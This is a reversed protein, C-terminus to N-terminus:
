VFDLCKNIMHVEGVGVRQPYQDSTPPPTALRAKLPRPRPIVLVRPSPQRPPAPVPRPPAQVPPPPRPAQVQAPHSPVQAPRSLVQNKTKEIEEESEEESEMEWLEDLEITDSGEDDSVQLLHNMTRPFPPLVRFGTLGDFSSISVVLGQWWAHTARLRKGPKNNKGLWFLRCIAWFAKLRFGM